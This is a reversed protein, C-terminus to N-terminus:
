SVCTILCTRWKGEERARVPSFPCSLSDNKIKLVYCREVALDFRQLIIYFGLLGDSLVFLCLRVSHADHARKFRFEGVCGFLELLNQFGSGLYKWAIM